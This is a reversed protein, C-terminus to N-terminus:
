KSAGVALDSPDVGEWWAKLCVVFPIKAPLVPAMESATDPASGQVSSGPRAAGPAEGAAEPKAKAEAAREAGKVAAVAKELASVHTGASDRV